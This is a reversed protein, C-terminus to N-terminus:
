IQALIEARKAAFEEESIAGAARLQELRQIRELPDSIPAAAPAAAAIQGVGSGDPGFADGFIAVIQAKAEAGGDTTAYAFTSPDEADYWIPYRQGRQPIATRSVTVKKDQDFPASGDLPEIHFTIVVRPNDNITTGTDRVNAVVGVALSGSEMLNAAKKRKNFM